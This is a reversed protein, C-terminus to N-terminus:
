RMLKASGRSQARVFYFLPLSGVWKTYATREKPAAETLSRQIGPMM